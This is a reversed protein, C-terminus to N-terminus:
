QKGAQYISLLVKDYLTLAQGLQGENALQRARRWAQDTNSPETPKSDAWPSVDLYRWYHKKLPNEYWSEWPKDQTIFHLIAPNSVAPPGGMATVCVNWRGDLLQIDNDLVLNITCQDGYKIREKHVKAYEICRRACDRERLHPLDILMVGSNIYQSIGYHSALEKAAPDPVGALARGDMPHDNLEHISSLVITDTDLYLVREVDHMLIEGLLLRFYTAQTAHTFWRTAVPVGAMAAIQEPSPTYIEFRARFARKLCEIRGLFDDDVEDTVIHICLEDGPARFNLLLSMVAAGFHRRYNRDFCYAVHM